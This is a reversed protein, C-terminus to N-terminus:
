FKKAEYVSSVTHLVSHTVSTYIFHKENRVQKRYLNQIIEIEYNIM